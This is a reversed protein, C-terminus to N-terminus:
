FFTEKGPSHWCLWFSLLLSLSHSLSLSVITTPLPIKSLISYAHATVPQHLPPPTLTVRRYNSRCNTYVYRSLVVLWGVMWEVWDNYEVRVYASSSFTYIAAPWVLSPSSPLLPSTTPSSVPSLFLFMALVYARTYFVCHVYHSLSPPNNVIPFQPWRVVTFM